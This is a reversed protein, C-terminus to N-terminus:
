LTCFKGKEGDIKLLASSEKTKSYVHATEEERERWRM